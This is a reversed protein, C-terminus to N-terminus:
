LCLRTSIRVHQTSTTLLDAQEPLGDIVHFLRSEEDFYKRHDPNKDRDCDKGLTCATRVICQAATQKTDATSADLQVQANLPM